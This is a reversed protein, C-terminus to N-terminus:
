GGAIDFVNKGLCPGTMVDHVANGWRPHQLTPWRLVLANLLPMTIDDYSVGFDCQVAAVPLILHSKQGALTWDISESCGSVFHSAVNPWDPDGPWRAM